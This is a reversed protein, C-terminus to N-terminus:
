GNPSSRTKFGASFYVYGFIHIKCIWRVEIASGVASKKKIMMISYPLRIRDNRYGTYKSRKHPFSKYKRVNSLIM